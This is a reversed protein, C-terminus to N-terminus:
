ATLLAHACGSWIEQPHIISDTGPINPVDMGTNLNIGHPLYARYLLQSCYFAEETDSDLFNM